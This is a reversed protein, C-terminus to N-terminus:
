FVYETYDSPTGEYYEIFKEAIDLPLNFAHKAQQKFYAYDAYNFIKSFGREQLIEMVQQSINKPTNKAHITHTITM